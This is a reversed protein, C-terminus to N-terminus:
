ELNQVAFHITKSYMVSPLFNTPVYSQTGTTAIDYSVAAVDYECLAVLEDVTVHGAM